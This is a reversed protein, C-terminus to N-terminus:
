GHSSDAKCVVTQALQCGCRLGSGINSSSLPTEKYIYYSVQM